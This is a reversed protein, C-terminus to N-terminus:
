RSEIEDSDRAFVKGVYGIKTAVKESVIEIARDKKSLFLHGAVRKFLPNYVLDTLEDSNEPLKESIVLVINDPLRGDKSNHLVSNEVILGLIFTIFEKQKPGCDILLVHKQRPENQCKKSLQKFWEPATWKATEDNFTLKGVIKQSNESIKRGKLDIKTYNDDIEAIKEEINDGYFIFNLGNKIYTKIRDFIVSEGDITAMDYGTTATMNLLLNNM